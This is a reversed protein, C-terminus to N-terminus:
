FDGANARLRELVRLCKLMEDATLGLQAFIERNLTDIAEGLVERGRSTLRIAVRRRDSHHASVQVYGSGQLGELASSVSTAHVQLADALERIGPVAQDRLLLQVLVEFRALTLGLPKVRANIAVTLLREICVIEFAASAGEAAAHWGRARWVDVMIDAFDDHVDHRLTSPGGELEATILLGM